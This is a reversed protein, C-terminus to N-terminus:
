VDEREKAYLFSRESLTEESSHEVPTALSEEMTFEERPSRSTAFLM